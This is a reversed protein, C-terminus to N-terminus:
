RRDAAARLSEVARSLSSEAHGARLQDDFLRLPPALADGAATLWRVLPRTVEAAGIGATGALAVAQFFGAFMGHMGSLQATDYM